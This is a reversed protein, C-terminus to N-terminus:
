DLLLAAIRSLHSAPSGYTQELAKARRLYLHLDCEWTVGIGGHLQIADGVVTVAHGTAVAQAMAVARDPRTHEALAWAAGQVASRSNEVAVLMDALRHKVAQFTGIPLGFQHRETTYRATTELAAAAAGTAEAAAMVPLLQTPYDCPGPLLPEADTGSLEAAAAPRTRDVTPLASVQAADTVFWRVDSDLVAPLVLVTAAAANPILPLHGDLRYRPGDQHVQVAALNHPEALVFGAVRDGRILPALLRKRQGDSGLAAITAVAATHETFPVAGVARGLEEAVLVPEVPGTGGGEDAESALLGLLGAAALAAWLADDIPTDTDYCARPNAQQECIDALLARLSEHEETFEFKM